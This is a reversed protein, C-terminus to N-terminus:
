RLNVHLRAVFCGESGKKVYVSASSDPIWGDDTILDTLTYEHLTEGYHSVVTHGTSRLNKFDVVATGHVLTTAAALVHKRIEERCAEEAGAHASGTLCLMGIGFVKVVNKM